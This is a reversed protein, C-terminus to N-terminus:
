RILARELPWGKDLRYKLGEKSIGIRAAWDVVNLRLGNFEIIRATSRRRAAIALAACHEPSKPRGKTTTKPKVGKRAMSINARHQDSFVRGKLAASQKARVDAPTVSGRKASAIKERAQWTHHKGQMSRPRGKWTAAIKAKLEDNPDLGEGGLTQNYGKDIKFSEFRAIWIRELRSLESRSCVGSELIEVAFNEWGYKRVARSVICKKWDKGYSHQQLRRKINNTQGIYIKQNVKNTLKYIWM